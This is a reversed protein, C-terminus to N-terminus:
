LLIRYITFDVMNSNLSDFSIFHYRATEDSPSSIAWNADFVWIGNSEVNGVIMTHPTTNNWNMQITDGALLNGLQEQPTIGETKVVTTVRADNSDEWKAWDEPHNIPIAVGTALPILDYVWEKCQGAEQSNMSEFEFAEGNLYGEIDYQLEGTSFYHDILHNLILRNGEPLSEINGFDLASSVSNQQEQTLEDWQAGLIRRALTEGSVPADVTIGDTMREVSSGDAFTAVVRFQLNQTCMAIRELPVEVFTTHRTGGYEEGTTANLIKVTSLERGAAVIDFRVRVNGDVVAVNTALVQAPANGAALFISGYGADEFLKKMASADQVNLATLIKDAPIATVAETIAALELQRQANGNALGIQQILGKFIKGVISDHRVTLPTLAPTSINPDYWGQTEAYLESAGCAAVQTRALALSAKDTVDIGGVGTDVGANTMSLLQRRAEDEVEDETVTIVTETTGNALAIQRKRQINTQGQAAVVLRATPNNGRLAEVVQRGARALHEEQQLISLTTGESGHAPRVQKGVVTSEGNAGVVEMTAIDNDETLTVNSSLGITSLGSINGTFTRTVPDATTGSQGVHIKVTVPGGGLGDNIIQYFMNVTGGARAHENDSSVGAPVTCFGEAPGVKRVVLVTSRLEMEQSPMIDTAHDGVNM